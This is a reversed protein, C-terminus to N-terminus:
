KGVITKSLSYAKSLVVAEIWYLMSFLVGKNMLDFTPLDLNITDEDSLKEDSPTLHNHNYKFIQVM